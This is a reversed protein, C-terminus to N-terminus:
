AKNSMLLVTVASAALTLYPVIKHTLKIFGPWTKEFSLMGGTAIMVAFFAFTLVIFAVTLPDLAAGKAMSRIIIIMFVLCAIAALKHVAMPGTHLPRGLKTVWFGSAIILVFLVAATIIRPDLIKM